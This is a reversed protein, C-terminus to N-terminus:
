RYKKSELYDLILQEEDYSKFYILYTDDKSRSEIRPNVDNGCSKLIEIVDIYYQWEIYLRRSCCVGKKDLYLSLEKSHQDARGKFYENRKIDKVYTYRSNLVANMRGYNSYVYKYWHSNHYRCYTLLSWLDCVNKEDCYDIIEAFLELETFEDKFYKEIDCGIAIIDDKSYSAKDDNNLHILYQVAGKINGILIEKKDPIAPDVSYDMPIKCGMGKFIEVWSELTKPGDSLLIIHYHEKKLSGDDKKDANHLPSIIGMGFKSIQEKWDSALSDLYGIAWAYRSKDYKKAM